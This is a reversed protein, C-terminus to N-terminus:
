ARTSLYGHVKRERLITRTELLHHTMANVVKLGALITVALLAQRDNQILPLRLGIFIALTVTLISTGLIYGIISLPHTWQRTAAIRGIGCQSCIAMGLVVLIIIDLRANTLFPIRQNTIGIFSISAALMALVISGPTIVTPQSITKM